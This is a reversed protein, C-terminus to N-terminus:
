NEYHWLATSSIQLAQILHLIIIKNQKTKQYWVSDKYHLWTSLYYEWEKRGLWQGIWHMVQKSLWDGLTLYKIRSYDLHWHSSLSSLSRQGQCSYMTALLLPSLLSLSILFQLFSQDTLTSTISQLLPLFLANINLSWITDQSVIFSHDYMPIIKNM